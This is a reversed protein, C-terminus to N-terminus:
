RSREEGPALELNLFYNEADLVDNRIFWFATGHFDNTGSKMTINVNAGGGFGVEASYANTQIKFEEIAEISPVFNTIHIRPDKADVGDLASSDM